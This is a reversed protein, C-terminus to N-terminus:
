PLPLIEVLGGAVVDIVLKHGTSREFEGALAGLVQMMANACLVKIEAAQVPIACAVLAFASVNLLATRLPKNM